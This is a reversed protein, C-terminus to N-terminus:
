VLLGANVRLFGFQAFYPTVKSRRFGSSSRYAQSASNRVAGGNRTLHYWHLYAVCSHASWSAPKRSKAQRGESTAGSSM